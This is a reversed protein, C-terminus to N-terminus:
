AFRRVPMAPVHGRTALNLRYHWYVWSRENFQGAQAQMLVERLVEDGLQAVLLQVDDYDGINMVQAIVHQPLTVAEDPTKWWIYKSAFPKLAERNVCVM